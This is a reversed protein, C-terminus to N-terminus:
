HNQCSGTYRKTQFGCGRWWWHGEYDYINVNYYGGGFAGIGQGRPAGKEIDTGTYLSCFFFQYPWMCRGYPPMKIKSCNRFESSSPLQKKRQGNSEKRLSCCLKQLYCGADALNYLPPISCDLQRGNTAHKLQLPHELEGEQFVSSRDVRMLATDADEDKKSYSM